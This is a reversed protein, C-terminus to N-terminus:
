LKTIILSYGVFHSYKELYVPLSLEEDIQRRLKYNSWWQHISESQHRHHKIEVHKGKFWKNTLDVIHKYDDNEFINIKLALIQGKKRPIFRKIIKRTLRLGAKGGGGFALSNNSHSMDPDFPPQSVVINFGKKKVKTIKKLHFDVNELGNLDRNLKALSIARPNIDIGVSSVGQQASQLALLGTGTGLDLLCDKNDLPIKDILSWSPKTPICQLWVYNNHHIYRHLDRFLILNRNLDLIPLFQWIFCDDEDTQKIINLKSLIHLSLPTINNLFDESLVLDAETYQTYVPYKSVLEKLETGLRHLTAFTFDSQSRIEPLVVM